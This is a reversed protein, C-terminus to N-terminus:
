SMEQVMNMINGMGGMQKLMGPDLAGQLQNMVAKPNRKLNDMNDDINMKGMKEVMKSFKKHEGLLYVVETPPMGAGRAVRLVRKENMPKICDLEEKTMSDMICLFKKIRDTSAKEQGKPIMNANFGPIMSVVNGISGMNLVSAFQDRM